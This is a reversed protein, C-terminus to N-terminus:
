EDERVTEFLVNVAIRCHDQLTEGPKLRLVVGTWPQGSEDVALTEADLV